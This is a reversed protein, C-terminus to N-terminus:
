TMFNRLDDLTEIHKRNRESLATGSPANFFSWHLPLHAIGSTSAAEAAWDRFISSCFSLFPLVVSTQTLTLHSREQGPLDLQSTLDIFTQNACQAGCQLLLGTKSRKSRLYFTFHAWNSTRQQINPPLTHPRHFSFRLRSGHSRSLNLPLKPPM